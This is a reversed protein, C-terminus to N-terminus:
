IIKCLTEFILVWHFPDMTSWGLLNYMQTWYFVFDRFLVQFKYDLQSSLLFHFHRTLISEILIFNIFPSQFFHHVKEVNFNRNKLEITRSWAKYVRHVVQTNQEPSSVPGDSSHHPVRTLILLTSSCLDLLTRFLVIFHEPLSHYSRPKISLFLSLCVLAVLQTFGWIRYFRGKIKIDHCLITM